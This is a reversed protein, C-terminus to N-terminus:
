RGGRILRGPMAGTHEGNEYTVEGACITAVYGDARQILRQGGAPLDSVMEPAHLRLADYDIITPATITDHTSSFGTSILGSNTDLALVAAGAAIEARSGAM